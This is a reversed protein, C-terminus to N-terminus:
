GEKISRASAPLLRMSVDCAGAWATKPVEAVGSSVGAGPPASRRQKIQRRESTPRRGSVKEHEPRHRAARARCRLRSSRTARTRRASVERVSAASASPESASSAPKSAVSSSRLM